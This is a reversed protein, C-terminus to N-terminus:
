PEDAVPTLLPEGAFFRRINERLQSFMDAGAERTYGAIHPTLVVNSFRSWAQAHPPEHSFVDLAAGGITGGELAQLLASEDVLFGRSVNVLLGEPGLARMIEGDIQGANAPSSRSAVVLIDNEEALSLLSHARTYAVGPKERPGWWSVRLGLAEARSAIQMGIRGMGVIGLRRGRLSPRPALVNRWAGDRVSRDAAPIGHWWALMLAIAHDAVDHANIGGATTLTVGRSRLHALDIGEYGTAFCAVLKLRPLSEVLRRDLSDGGCALVEIGNALEPPLGRAIAEPGVLEFGDAWAARHGMLLGSAVLVTGGPM